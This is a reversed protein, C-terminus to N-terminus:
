EVGALIEQGELVRHVQGDGDGVRGVGEERGDRGDRQLSRHGCRQRRGYVNRGRNSLDVAVIGRTVLKESQRSEQSDPVLIEDREEQGSIQAPREQSDKEAEEQKLEAKRCASHSREYSKGSELYVISVSDTSVKSRSRSSPESHRKSKKSVKDAHQGSEPSSRWFDDKGIPQKKVRVVETLVPTSEAHADGDDDDDDDDDDITIIDEKKTDIKPRAGTKVSLKPKKKVTAAKTSQQCLKKSMSKPGKEVENQKGTPKAADPVRVHRPMDITSQLLSQGQQLEDDSDDQWQRVSVNRSLPPPGDSPLLLISGVAPLVDDTAKGEQANHLHIIMNRMKSRLVESAPLPMDRAPDMDRQLIKSTFGTPDIIFKEMYACLYLGCDSFNAQTPIGKATMGKLLNSNIEVGKKNKAEEVIYHRLATCTASRSSGLSDFTMIVPDSMNYRPLSYRAGKRRGPASARPVSYSGSSSMAKGSSGTEKDNESLSLHSFSRTTKDTHQNPQTQTV